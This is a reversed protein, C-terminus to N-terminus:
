RKQGELQRKIELLRELERNLPEIQVTAEQEFKKDVPGPTQKLKETLENAITSIAAAIVTVRLKIANIDTLTDSLFENLGALTGTAQTM